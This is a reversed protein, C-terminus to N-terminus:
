GGGFGGMGGSGIIQGAGSLASGIAERNASDLSRQLNKKAYEKQMKFGFVEAAANNAETQADLEVQGRTDAQVAAATGTTSEVGSNAYAVKQKAILRSGAMRINGAELTGKQSTRAANYDLAKIADNYDEQAAQGKASANMQGMAITAIGSLASGM